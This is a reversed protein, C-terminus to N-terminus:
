KAIVKCLVIRADDHIDDLNEERTDWSRAFRTKLSGEALLFAEVNLPLRKEGGLGCTIGKLLLREKRGLFGRGLDDRGNESSSSFARREVAMDFVDDVLGTAPSLIEEEGEEEGGCLMSLWSCTVPLLWGRRM